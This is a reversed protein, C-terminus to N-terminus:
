SPLVGTSVTSMAAISRPEMPLGVRQARVQPRSAAPTQQRPSLVRRRLPPEAVGSVQKKQVHVEGFRVAHANKRLEPMM